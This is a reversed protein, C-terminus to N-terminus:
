SRPVQLLSTRMSKDGEVKIVGVCHLTFNDFVKKPDNSMTIGTIDNSLVTLEKSASVLTVTGAGCMTMDYPTEGQAIPVFVVFVFVMLVALIIHNMKKTNMIKEEEMIKCNKVDANTTSARREKNM